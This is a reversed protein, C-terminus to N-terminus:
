GEQYTNAPNRERKRKERADRKGRKWDGIGAREQSSFRESTELNRASKKRWRRKRNLSRGGSEGKSGRGGEKSRCNKVCNQKESTEKNGFIM